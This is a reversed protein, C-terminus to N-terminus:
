SEPPEVREVIVEAWDDPDVGGVVHEDLVQNDWIRTQWVPGERGTRRDFSVIFSAQEVWDPEDVTVDVADAASSLGEDLRGPKSATALDWAQFLWRQSIIRGAPVPAGIQELREALDYVNARALQSMSTVGARVLAKATKTGVGDLTTFDAVTRDGDDISM